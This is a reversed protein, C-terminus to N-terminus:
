PVAPPARGDARAPALRVLAVAARGDRVALVKFTAGRLAGYNVWFQTLNSLFADGLDVVTTVRAFLHSVEAVAVLRDNRVTKGEETQEAEIVGILRVEVLVGVQGPEDNLVLIDVPDGDQARTSPVFGFDLPFSMGDPLLRKLEFAQAEPDYAYKGRQGKPTGIVVRCTASRKDLRHPLATLDSM